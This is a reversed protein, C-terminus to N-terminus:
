KAEPADTRFPTAPLGEKNFFNVVPFNAWGFRVAKPEKVEPASVVVTDGQIEAKAKVFKGDEGAVAFGKLEGDRAELGGGVHDFALIAKDGEVKMSKFSPGSYVLKEGYAIARAAKALREGVPRKQKPHIDNEEGVDTIVAMGTRPAAKLTLLQAERLEAWGSQVPDPVIKMFPALQVFLFPFDGQGWTKRWSQIMAPFLKRYQEPNGANSEGQYWIAGKVAFPALPAIMANYLVTPNSTKRNTIKLMEKLDADAELAGRETWAEAPTGGVNTSIIGVPVKLSERLARGFHYAVASFEPLTAPTCAEWHAQADTEPTDAGRRPITILRLLPDNAAAITSEADASAKISWQMNSQGSALWVEGVLVDRVRVTYDGRIILNEPQDSAKLPELVVKWKGDKATTNVEQGAFRVSIKEGDRATGWVPVKVGQQLVVGDSFLNNPKVGALASAGSLAFLALGWVWGRRMPSRTM